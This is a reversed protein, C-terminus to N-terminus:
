YPKYRGEKGKSEKKRKSKKADAGAGPENTPIAQLCQASTWIRVKGDEGGTYIRQAEDDICISRVIEEGHGGPLRLAGGIESQWEGDLKLPILDIRRESTNGVGVVPGSSSSLVNVAYQCSWIDRVDGFRIPQPEEVSEDPSAVQYVSLNEDHSLAFISTSGLFGAHHISSGHNIVQHLAEEEDSIASNYVNVLGDTSGSLFFTPDNPHFRLETVDDNHSEVYQLQPTVGARIDWLATIAQPEERNQPTLETGAVIANRSSSCDLSLIAGQKQKTLTTVNTSTRTDWIRVLGDRGATVLSTGSADLSRLCTVGENINQYTGGPILKLSERDFLRLSDNLRMLSEQAVVHGCPMMMPPNQDTTQEKSVPCVFISHFHYSPPLPIEVPLENQTTWETKKEKMINQLKLLTPLAIAGATAAIYLPSDASLGLLSCFERTFSDAVEDWASDNYFIKRYPSQELNPQYALAAVLQQIEHLYRGQFGKFERRAYELAKQPGEQPTGDPGGLFLWVFQLRGLEFELDSGRDELDRSNARAWEIAPRLNRENRLEHLTHYMDAFKQQLSESRLSDIGLQDQASAKASGTPSEAQPPSAAIENLFTSAVSFQGERLLHMAIARNILTPHSSLADYETTPLPKDKFKKDLAKGYKGLGSYIEKLDDNIKDFSQKAPTQLKALTIASPGTELSARANVLLDITKQVDDIGKSLNSRKSLREHEKQLVDM